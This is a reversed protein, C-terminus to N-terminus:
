EPALGLQGMFEMQDFYLHHETVKDGQVTAIDCSRLRVRKGTAPMTQGDPLHLPGTNTGVFYGEDIARNGSELKNLSEYRSDPFSDIFTRWYEAIQDRGRVEGADPATVVANEAYCEVVATLDHRELGAATLRDLVTRANGM